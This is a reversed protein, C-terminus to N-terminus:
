LADATLITVPSGHRRDLEAAVPELRERSRSWIALRCGEAALGFAIARGIGSSAGGVLARKGQIGLEVTGGALVYGTRSGM